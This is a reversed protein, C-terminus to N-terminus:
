SVLFCRGLTDKQGQVQIFSKIFLPSKELANLIRQHRKDRKLEMLNTHSARKSCEDLLNFEGAHVSRIGNEILVDLMHGAITKRMMMDKRELSICVSMCFYMGCLLMRAM